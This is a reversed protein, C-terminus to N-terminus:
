VVVHLRPHVLQKPQVVFGSRRDLRMKRLILGARPPDIIPPDDASNNM